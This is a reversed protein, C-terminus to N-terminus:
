PCERFAFTLNTCKNFNFTIGSIDSLTHCYAFMYDASGNCTINGSISQLNSCSNFLNSCSGVYTLNYINEVSQCDRFTISNLATLQGM